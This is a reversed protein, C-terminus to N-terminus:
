EVIEADIIDLSTDENTVALHMSTTIKPEPNVAVTKVDCDSLPGYIGMSFSGDGKPTSVSLRFNKNFQIHTKVREGTIADISTVITEIHVLKLHRDFISM